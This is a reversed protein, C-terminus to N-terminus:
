RNSLFVGLLIIIAGLVLPLTILEGLLLAGLIASVAPMIYTPLTSTTAGYRKILYFNLLFALYSGILGTYFVSFWGKITVASLDLDSFFPVFISVAIFAVAIQGATVVFLDADKLRARTFVAASSAALVGFLVLAPGRLDVSGGNESIGTTRTLILLVVGSLAVLLGILKAGSLREHALWRHAIVATFLPILSIFVTHVGSSIFALATIFATLPVATTAIGSIIIDRLTSHNRPLEKKLIILTPIFLITAFGLRLAALSLPPIESLGMRSIVVSSGYATGALLVLVLRKM